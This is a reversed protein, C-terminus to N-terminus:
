IYKIYPMKQNYNIVITM